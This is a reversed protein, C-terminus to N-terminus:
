LEGSFDIVPTVLRGYLYFQSDDHAAVSPRDAAWASGSKGLVFTCACVSLICAVTLLAM